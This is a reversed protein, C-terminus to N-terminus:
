IGSVVGRHRPDSAGTMMGADDIYILQLDSYPERSKLIYGMASLSNILETNFAGEEYYLLDPLWQHHFRPQAATEEPTLGFRTFNIIAQAVVTIIKSGGPSGLVMFPKGNKLIITPTMSSLMRKGPEIKNAEGGVLGYTNPEGPKISFDDMENNLLLGFGNVMLKSGYNTNLTYTVSVMNGERDCISYHTTQDSEKQGIIGPKIDVSPTAAKLNIQAAREEIYLPSTLRSTPVDYFLPDGMYESRDAYSLKALETFLHIYEVSQPNYRTFDYQEISKLIQNLMIGGSSPPPMTYIDLSDFVFHIPVRKIIKYNILDPKTILGQYETMTAALSDAIAGEYFAKPGDAAILYLARALNKQYLKEGVQLAAGDPFFTQYTQDFVALESKDDSLSNVLYSDVVFGTDALSAAINVLEEWEMKGKDLWVEYLGAVTGPVGVAKAGKLSSGEVVNGNQDLFMTETAALPATERFDIAEISNTHGDRIIAFGGGGINGAIPHTVAMVFGVAVAADFANGGEEFVKKGIQSAIPSATAVIGKEYLIQYSLSDCGAFVLVAFAALLLLVVTRRSKSKNLFSM